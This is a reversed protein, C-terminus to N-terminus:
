GSFVAFPRFSLAYLVKVNPFLGDFSTIVSFSVACALAVALAYAGATMISLNPYFLFGILRDPRGLDFALCLVGSALAVLCVVWARAFFESPLAFARAVRTKASFSREIAMASESNTCTDAFYHQEGSRSGSDVRLSGITRGMFAKGFCMCGVPSGFRRHANVCELLSLVVLTGAGVGGLFLYGIALM